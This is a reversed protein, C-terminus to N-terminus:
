ASLHTSVSAFPHISAAPDPLGTFLSIGRGAAPYSLLQGQGAEAVILGLRGSPDFACNTPNPGPLRIRDIVQGAPNVIRVEGTGYVAVYLNGNADFAMGDPGGPGDPGGVDCWVRADTWQATDANWHGRWLRHRYTEAIVLEDGGPAFALGNPFYLGGALKHVAGTPTLVCVYGTPQQRSNGPCTFLLNGRADFALDNPNDLPAGDLQDAVTATQGGVPDLRRIANLAADCFWVQGRVDFAIGNPAGGVPYRHLQGDRLRVLSEGKLEVAWLSGDPAFAPGEPFALGDALITHTTTM